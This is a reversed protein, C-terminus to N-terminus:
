KPQGHWNGPGGKEQYVFFDGGEHKRTNDVKSSTQLGVGGKKRNGRAKRRGEQIGAYSGGGRPGKGTKRGHRVGRKKKKTSSQIEVVEKAWAPKQPTLSSRANCRPQKQKETGEEAWLFKKKRPRGHTKRIIPKAEWGETEFTGKTEHPNEKRKKRIPLVTEV